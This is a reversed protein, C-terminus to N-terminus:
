DETRLDDLIEAGGHALLYDGTEIGIAEAREPVGRRHHRVMKSGELDAVFADLLLEGNEIRAYAGMPVHCGGELRALVAREATVACRTATHELASAWRSAHGSDNRTAIALAGQGPASLWGPPELTQTVTDLLGLRKVGALALIIGHLSNSNHLRRLRTDINGRLDVLEIDARAARLQARRRLSGTAICVRSSRPRGAPMDDFRLGDKGIFADRPDEREPIAAIVIGEVPDTPVDKLSHVVIDVRGDLLARDLEKTFLGKDGIKALPIDQIRDGTTKVTEIEIHMDPFREILRDRVWHAQWMALKSGRSGIRLTEPVFIM